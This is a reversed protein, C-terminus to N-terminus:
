QNDSPFIEYKIDNIRGYDDLLILRQLYECIQKRPLIHDVLRLLLNHAPTSSINIM